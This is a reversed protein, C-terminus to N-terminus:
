LAAQTKPEGTHTSQWEAVEDLAQHALSHVRPGEVNVKQTDNTRLAVELASAAQSLQHAGAIGASGKLRHVAEIAHNRDVRGLADSLERAAEEIVLVWQALIASLRAKDDGYLSQLTKLDVSVSEIPGARYEMVNSGDGTGNKSARVNFGAKDMSFPIFCDLYAALASKPPKTKMTEAACAMLFM